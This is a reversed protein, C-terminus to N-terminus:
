FIPSQFHLFYWKLINAPKYSKSMSQQIQIGLEIQFSIFISSPIILNEDMYMKIEIGIIGIKGIFYPLEGFLIIKVFIM